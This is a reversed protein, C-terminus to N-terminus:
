RSGWVQFEIYRLIFYEAETGSAKKRQTDKEETPLMARYKKKEVAQMWHGREGCRKRM